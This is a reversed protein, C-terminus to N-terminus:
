LDYWEEITIKKALVGDLSFIELGRRTINEFVLNKGELFQTYLGNLKIGSLLIFKAKLYSAMAIAALGSNDKPFKGSIIRPMSYDLYHPSFWYIKGSLELIKKPVSPDVIISLAYNGKRKIIKSNDPSMDVTVYLESDIDATPVSFRPYFKPHSSVARGCVMIKEEYLELDDITCEINKINVEANTKGVESNWQNNPDFKM